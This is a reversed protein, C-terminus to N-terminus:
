RSQRPGVHSADEDKTGHQQGGAAHLRGVVEGIGQGGIGHPELCQARLAKLRVPDAALADALNDAPQEGCAALLVAGLVLVCRM